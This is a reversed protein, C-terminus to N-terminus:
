PQEISGKSELTKFSIVQAARCTHELLGKRKTSRDRRPSETMSKIIWKKLTNPEEDASEVIPLADRASVSPALNFATQSPTVIQTTISIPREIM